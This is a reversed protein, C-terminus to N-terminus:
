LSDTTSTQPRLRDKAGLAQRLARGLDPPSISLAQAVHGIPVGQLVLMAGHETLAPGSLRTQLEPNSALAGRCQAILQILFPTTDADAAKWVACFAAELAQEAWDERGALGFAFHWLVGAHRDYLTELAKLDRAQMGNRLIPDLM